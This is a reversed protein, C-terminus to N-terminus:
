KKSREALAKEAEEQTLFVNYGIKGGDVYWNTEAYINETSIKLSHVRDAVVSYVGGIIVITFVRDGVKCPLHVWESKDKYRECNEAIRKNFYDDDFLESFAEDKLRCVVLKCAEYHLCDKCSKM